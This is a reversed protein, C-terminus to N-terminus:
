IPLFAAQFCVVFVYNRAPMTCMHAKSNWQRAGLAECYWSWDGRIQMLCTRVKRGCNPALRQSAQQMILPKGLEGPMPKCGDKHGQLEWLLVDWIQNVSEPTIESKRYMAYLHKGGLETWRRTGLHPFTVYVAYLTDAQPDQGVAIGDCYLGVPLVVDGTM